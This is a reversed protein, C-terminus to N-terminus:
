GDTHTEPTARDPCKYKVAAEWLVELEQKFAQYYRDGVRLVMKPKQDEGAKHPYLKVYLVGDANGPNIAHVGHSLPTRTTRIELSGRDSAPLGCLLERTRRIENCKTEADTPLFSRQVAPEVVAPEPTALLIRVTHGNALKDNLLKFYRPVTRVLSIGVLWLEQANVLDQRHNAPFEELLFGKKGRVGLRGIATEIKTAAAGLASALNGSAHPAFTAATVGALDSPLKIPLTRDYVLFTRDRGLSGMFLGLEFLVNDRPASASENRSTVLDDPTLVLIAFDFDDSASVLSELTGQSLGFVGQSWITVEYSEDLLIQIVKGIKLGESSSGVFISPRTRAMM